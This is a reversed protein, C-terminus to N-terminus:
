RLRDSITTLVGSVLCSRVGAMRFFDVPKMSIPSCAPCIPLGRGRRVVGGLSSNAPRSSYQFPACIAIRAKARNCCSIGSARSVTTPWPGSLSRSSASAACQAIGAILHIEYGPHRLLLQKAQIVAMVQEHKRAQVIAATCHYQFRQRAPQGDHTQVKAARPEDYCRITPIM